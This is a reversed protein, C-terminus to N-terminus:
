RRARRDTLALLAVMALAAFAAMWVPAGNFDVGTPPLERAADVPAAVTVDLATPTNTVTPETTATDTPIPTATGTETPTATDTPIPTETPVPTETATNTPVLPSNRTALPSSTETASNTPVLPSNRTALPSSTETATEAPIPTATPQSTATATSTVTPETTAADTPVPTESATNTPVATATSTETATATDTPIPTGTPVQTETATNTPVATATSTETATATDTPIPTETPVPTETATNTPTLPSNRPALPSSAETATSTPALTATAMETPTATETPVPTETATNTPVATATSTETATATDTPIATETPVPTETATATSTPAPTVTATNKPAPLDIQVPAAAAKVTGSLDVSAVAITYAGSGALEILLEWRGQADVVTAGATAGDVEVRVIDGPTGSGRLPVVGSPALLELGAAEIAPPAPTSTVTATDTPIPTESAAASPTATATETPAPTETATNTPVLQSNRPALPTDETPTETATATPVPTATETPVPTVTSTETSTATETPPTDETPTETATATPSPIAVVIGQAPPALTYETGGAAIARVSVAYVDPQTLPALLSWAGTAGVTTTAVVSSDLLLQIEAGAEGKGDAAVRRNEPDTTVIISDVVAPPSPTVTATPPVAVVPQAPAAISLLAPTATAVIVGADDVSQLGIAYVGPANVQLAVAWDGNPDVVTSAAVAGDIVVQITAGPEGGGHLALQGATLTAKLLTEDLSPSRLAVSPVGVTLTLPDAASVVEGAANVMELTLAVDGPQDIAATAAWVGDPQVPAAALLKGAQDRVRISYSRVGAGKLEIAGPAVTSGTLPSILVPRALTAEVTFIAVQTASPTPVLVTLNPQCSRVALLTIALVALLLLVAYKAFDLRRVARPERRQAM